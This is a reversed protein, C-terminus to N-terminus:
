ARLRSNQISTRAYITSILENRQASGANVVDIRNWKACRCCAHVCRREVARVVINNPVCYLVRATKLPPVLQPLHSICSQFVHRCYHLDTM